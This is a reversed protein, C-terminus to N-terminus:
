LKVKVIQNDRHRLRAKALRIARSKQRFVVMGWHTLAYNSALLSREHYVETNWSGATDAYQKVSLEIESASDNRMEREGFLWKSLRM